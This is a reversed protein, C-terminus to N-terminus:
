DTPKVSCCGGALEISVDFFREFAERIRDFEELPVGAARCVFEQPSEREYSRGRTLQRPRVDSLVLKEVLQRVVKPANELMIKLEVDKMDSCVSAADGITSSIESEDGLINTAEQRWRTTDAAMWLFENMVCRKFLSMFHAANEVREPVYRQICKFYYFQGWALVDEMDHQPKIKWLNRAGYNLLWQRVEGWPPVLQKMNGTTKSAM